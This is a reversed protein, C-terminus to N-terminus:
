SGPMRSLADKVAGMSKQANDAANTAADKAGTLYDEAQSIMSLLQDKHDDSSLMLLTGAIMILFVTMIAQFTTKSM